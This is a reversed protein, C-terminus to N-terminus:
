IGTGSDIRTQTVLVYDCIRLSAPRVDGALEMGACYKCM